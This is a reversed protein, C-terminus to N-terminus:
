ASGATFSSRSSRLVVYNPDAVRALQRAGAHRRGASLVSVGSFGYTYANCAGSTAGAWSEGLVQATWRRDSGALHMPEGVPEGDVWVVWWGPNWPQELVAVRHPEGAGVFRRVVHYAPAKGPFAVEYYIASTTDNTLASLGVQLWASADPSVVGVWGAVHGSRVQLPGAQEITASVGRSASTGDFGAYAYTGSGCTPAANAPASFACAAAATLAAAVLTHRLSLM